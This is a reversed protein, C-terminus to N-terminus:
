LKTWKKVVVDVYRVKSCGSTDPDSIGEPIIENTRKGCDICKIAPIVQNMYRDDFYGNKVLQTNNCYECELVADFDNRHQWVIELLKVGDGRESSVDIPKV